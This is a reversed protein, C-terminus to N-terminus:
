HPRWNCRLCSYCLAQPLTLLRIVAPMLHGCVVLLVPRRAAHGGPSNILKERLGRLMSLQCLQQQDANCTTGTNVSYTDAPTSAYRYVPLSSTALQPWRQAQFPQAAAQGPNGHDWTRVIERDSQWTSLSQLRIQPALLSAQIPVQPQSVSCTCVQCAGALQIQQMHSLQQVLDCPRRLLHDLGRCGHWMAM